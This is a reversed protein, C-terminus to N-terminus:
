RRFLSIISSVTMFMIALVIYQEIKESPFGASVGNKEQNALNALPIGQGILVEPAQQFPQQVAQVAAQAVQAVPQVVTQAARQVAPSVNNNLYNALRNFYGVEDSTYPVSSNNNYASIAAQMQSQTPAVSVYGGSIASPLEDPRLGFPNDDSMMYNSNAM